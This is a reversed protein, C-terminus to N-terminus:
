LTVRSCRCASIPKSGSYDREWALHVVDNYKIGCRVCPWREDITGYLGSINYSVRLEVICHDIRM